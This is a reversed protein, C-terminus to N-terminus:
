RDNRDSGAPCGLLRGHLCEGNQLLHGPFGSGYVPHQLLFTLGQEPEVPFYVPTYYYFVRSM